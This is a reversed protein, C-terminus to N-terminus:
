KGIWEMMGRRPILWQRREFDPRQFAFLSGAAIAEAVRPQPRGVCRAVEVQSLLDEGVYLVIALAAWDAADWHTTRSGARDLAIGFTSGSATWGDARQIPMDEDHAMEPDIGAVLERLALLDEWPFLIADQGIELVALPLDDTDITRHLKMKM